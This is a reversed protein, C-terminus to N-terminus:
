GAHTMRRWHKAVRQRYREARQKNAPSHYCGVSAWWDKRTQYCNNLIDAGVRLNHYPDLAQWPTGLKKGHYRWNVQMLGIDISRRGQRIWSKLAQWAEIRSDFFYGKGAVNLTWPWPRYLNSDNIQTASETMAVAYLMTSPVGRETAIIRYGEPVQEESWSSSSLFIGISVILRAIHITLANM